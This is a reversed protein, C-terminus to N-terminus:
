TIRHWRTHCASMKIPTDLFDVGCLGLLGCGIKDITHVAFLLQWHTQRMM